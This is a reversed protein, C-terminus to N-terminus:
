YRVCKVTMVSGSQKVRVIYIGSPLAGLDLDVGGNKMTFTSRQEQGRLDFVEVAEPAVNSGTSIFFRADSPNPTARLMEVVTPDPTAIPPDWITNLVTNTIVPLNFDFFIAASNWIRTGHTLGGQQHIFYHVYGQSNEYDTGSDPLMIQDFTFRVVKDDIFDYSVDHSAGIFLFSPAALHEDLTDLIRVQYATDTGTNQFFITYGLDQGPPIYGEMGDGNPTVTKENPDYSNTVLGFAKQRNNATDIDGVLSTEKLRFWLTDGLSATSDTMFHVSVDNLYLEFYSSMVPPFTFVLSDGAAVCPTTSFMFTLASTDYHM